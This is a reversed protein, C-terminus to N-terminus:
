GFHAFFVLGGLFGVMFCAFIIFVHPLPVRNCDCPAKSEPQVEPTNYPTLIEYLDEDQQYPNM